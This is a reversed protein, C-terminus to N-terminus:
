AISANQQQTYLQQQETSVLISEFKLEHYGCLNVM